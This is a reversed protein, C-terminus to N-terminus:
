CFKRCERGSCDKQYFLQSLIFHFSSLKRWTSLKEGTDLNLTIIIIFRSRWPVEKVLKACCHWLSVNGREFSFTKVIFYLTLLPNFQVLILICVFTFLSVLAYQVIAYIRVSQFSENGFCEFKSLYRVYRFLWFLIICSLIMASVHLVDWM